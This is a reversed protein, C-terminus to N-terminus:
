EKLNKIFADDVYRTVSSRFRRLMKPYKFKGEKVLFDSAYPQSLFVCVFEFIPSLDRVVTAIIKRTNKLKLTLIDALEIVYLM